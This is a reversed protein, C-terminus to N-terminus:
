EGPLVSRSQARAAALASMHWGDAVAAMRTLIPWVYRGQKGREHVITSLFFFDSTKRTEPAPRELM